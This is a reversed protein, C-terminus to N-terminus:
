NNNHIIIYRSVIEIEVDNDYLAFDLRYTGTTLNRMLELNLNIEDVPAKTIYYEKQNSTHEMPTSVYNGLDVLSYTTDYVENYNRRYMRIRINPHSLLSTYYIKGNISNDAGTKLIVSTDNLDVKLGYTSNIISSNIDKHVLNTTSYYIGDISGFSTIEFTYSGTPLLSNELNVQVLQEISGVKDALKIRAVGNIDPYYKVGDVLYYLGSLANGSVYNGDSNKVKIAIGLKYDFYETNYINISGQKLTKPAIQLTMTHYYVYM